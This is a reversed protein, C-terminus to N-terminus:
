SSQACEIVPLLSEEKYKSYQPTQLCIVRRMQVLNIRPQYNNKLEM